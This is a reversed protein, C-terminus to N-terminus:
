PTESNSEARVCPGVQRPRQRHQRQAAATAGEAVPRRSVPLDVILMPGEGLCAATVVLLWGEAELASTNEGQRRGQLISEALNAARASYQMRCAQLTVLPSPPPSKGGVKCPLEAGARPVM